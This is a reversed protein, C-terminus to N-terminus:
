FPMLRGEWDGVNYDGFDYIATVAAITAVHSSNAQSSSLSTTAAMANTITNVPELKYQQIREKALSHTAASTTKCKSTLKNWMMNSTMDQLVGVLHPDKINQYIIGALCADQLEWEEASPNHSNIPTNVPATPAAATTGGQAPATIVAPAIAPVTITGDLYGGLGTSRAVSKLHDHFVAWNSLGVLQCDEPFVLLNPLSNSNSSSM